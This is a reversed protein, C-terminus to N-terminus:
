CRVYGYAYSGYWRYKGSTKLRDRLLSQRGHLSSQFVDRSLLAFHCFPAKVLGILNRRPHPIFEQSSQLNCKKKPSILFAALHYNQTIKGFFFANIYHGKHINSWLRKILNFALPLDLLLLPHIHHKQPSSTPSTKYWCNVMPSFQAKNVQFIILTM